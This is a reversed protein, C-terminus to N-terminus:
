SDRLTNSLCCSGHWGARVFQLTSGSAKRNISSPHCPQHQKLLVKLSLPVFSRSFLNCTGVAHHSPGVTKKLYELIQADTQVAPGPAVEPGSIIGFSNSLLRARRIGQVALQQETSTLLWNVSLIPNDTIDTSNITVSGRSTTKMLVVGVAAFNHTDNSVVGVGNLIYQLDPWDSHFRSLDARASATLNVYSSDQPHEWAVNNPNTALM